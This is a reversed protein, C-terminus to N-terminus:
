RAARLQARLRWVDGRTVARGEVRDYLTVAGYSRSRRVSEVYAMAALLDSTTLGDYFVTADSRDVMGVEYRRSYRGFRDEAARTNDAAIRARLATNM